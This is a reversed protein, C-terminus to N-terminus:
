AVRRQDGGRDPRPAGVIFGVGVAIAMLSALHAVSLIGLIRVDVRLFEIVFRVAGALVLYAGLV